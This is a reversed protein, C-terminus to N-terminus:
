SVIVLKGSALMEEFTNLSEKNPASAKIAEEIESLLM